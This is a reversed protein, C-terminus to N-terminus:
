RHTDDAQRNSSDGGDGAGGSGSGGPNGSGGSGHGHGPEEEHQHKRTRQRIQNVSQDRCNDFTASADVEQLEIIALYKAPTLNQQRACTRTNADVTFVEQEVAQEHTLLVSRLRSGLTDLMSTEDTDDTQITVCFLGQDQVYGLEIVKEVIIAFADDYPRFMVDVSNLVKQGDDNYAYVGIVQNFRNIRLEIGPNAEIDIYATETFVLKFSAMGAVLVLLVSAFAAVLRRNGARRQKTISQQIAPQQSIAQKDYAQDRLFAMTDRKLQEEARISHLAKRIRNM